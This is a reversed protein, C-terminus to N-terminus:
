ISLQAGLLAVQDRALLELGSPNYKLALVYVELATKLAERSTAEADQPLLQYTGSYLWMVFVHGAELSTEKLLVQTPDIEDWPDRPGTGYLQTKDTLFAKHVHLTSSKLVLKM